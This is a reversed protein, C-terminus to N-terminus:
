VERWVGHELYGHWEGPMLISPNVTITGDEHETIQHDALNGVGGKPLYAWWIGTEEDRWYDGPKPDDPLLEDPKNKYVRRGQM